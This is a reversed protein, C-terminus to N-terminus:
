NSNRDHELIKIDILMEYWLAHNVCYLFGAKGDLFGLKIFYRYLFYFVPKIGLPLKNWMNLRIYKRIRLAISLNSNDIKSVVNRNALYQEKEREANKIHKTIWYEFPRRDEHILPTRIELSKGEITAYERAGEAHYMLGAKKFILQIKPHGYAHKINKGLFYLDKNIYFSTIDIGKNHFKLSLENFFIDNISEDADLFFVWDNKILCNELMWNRQTAWHIFQNEYFDVDYNLCIQKTNDTSFSDTIIVQNFREVVSDLTVGINKDENYSMILVSIPLKNEYM